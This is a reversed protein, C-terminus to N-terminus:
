APIRQPGSPRMLDASVKELLAKTARIGEPESLKEGEYEIGVFGHYGADLLIKLMRRYDTHIENGSKDFDNSKASVAKAHPMMEAVGRYRDYEAGGELRFNGFDPLTGCNPLAVKKIVSVLWASNSSFGGHNEVLVNLGAKAAYECLRRLGEAVRNKQEDESGTSHANVRISHCGLARAADVWQHHNEVAQRRKADDADGLAGEGDCMILLTKVGLDDARQKFEALYREDRAKDKFFQNVLEIATIGYQQKAIKPFDLHAMQGAFLARHLSWEALSISFPPQLRPQRQPFVARAPEPLTAVLAGGAALASKKMFVRRSVSTIPAANM